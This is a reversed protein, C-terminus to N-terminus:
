PGIYNNNIYNSGWPYGVLTKCKPNRARARSSALDQLKWSVSGWSDLYKMGLNYATQTRPGKLRLYPCSDLYNFLPKIGLNYVIQTRPGKLLPPYRDGGGYVVYM